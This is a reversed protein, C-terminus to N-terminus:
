RILDHSGRLRLFAKAAVEELVVAQWHPHVTAAYINAAEIDSFVLSTAYRWGRGGKVVVRLVRYM